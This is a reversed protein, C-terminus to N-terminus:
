LAVGCRESHRSVPIRTARAVLGTRIRPQLSDPDRYKAVLRMLEERSEAAATMLTIQTQQRPELLLATEYRVCSGARIWRDRRCRMAPDRWTRGRGLFRARDTEYEFSM